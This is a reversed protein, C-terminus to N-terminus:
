AARRSQTQLLRLAEAIVDSHHSAFQIDYGMPQGDEGVDVAYEKDDHVVTHAVRGERLTVYMSDTAPDYIIPSTTM